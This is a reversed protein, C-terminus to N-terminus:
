RKHGLSPQHQKNRVRISEHRRRNRVAKVTSYVVGPAATLVCAWFWLRYVRSSTLAHSQLKQWQM